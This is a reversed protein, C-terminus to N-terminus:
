LATARRLSASTGKEVMLRFPIPILQCYLPTMSDVDHLRNVGERLKGLADRAMIFKVSVMRNGM